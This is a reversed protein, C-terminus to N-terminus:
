GSAAQHCGARGSLEAGQLIGPDEGAGATSPSLVTLSWPCSSHTGVPRGFGLPFPFCLSTCSSMQEDQLSRFAADALGWFLLSPSSWTNQPLSLSMPAVAAPVPLAQCVRTHGTHSLYPVSMALSLWQADVELEWQVAETKRWLELYHQWYIEEETWWHLPHKAGARCWAPALLLQDAM